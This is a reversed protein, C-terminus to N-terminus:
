GGACLAAPDGGQRFGCVLGIAKDIVENADGLRKLHFGVTLKVGESFVYSTTCFPSREVTPKHCTLALPRPGETRVLVDHLHPSTEHPCVKYGSREFKCTKLYGPKFFLDDIEEGAKMSFLDMGVKYPLGSSGKFFAKTDDGYPKMDPWVASIHIARDVKGDWNPKYWLFAKPVEFVEGKLRLEVPELSKTQGMETLPGTFISMAIAGMTVVMLAVMLWGATKFNM